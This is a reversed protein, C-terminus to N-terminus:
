KATTTPPETTPPASKLESRIQDYAKESTPDENREANIVGKDELKKTLVQTDEETWAAVAESVKNPNASFRQVLKAINGTLLKAVKTDGTTKAWNTFGEVIDVAGKQRAVSEVVESMERTLRQSEPNNVTEVLRSSAEAFSSIDRGKERQFPTSGQTMQETKGSTFAEPQESKSRDLLSQINKEADSFSSLDGPKREFPPTVKPTQAQGEASGPEAM